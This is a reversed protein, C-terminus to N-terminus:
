WLGPLLRHRVREAYASYAPLERRLYREELRLRVVVFAIPVFACLAATYSGLGLGMGILVLLTGSYFPHRVIRYVGTNVVDHHRERQVRVVSTAFANSRLALGKIAWGLAFLLLGLDALLPTPPSLLQWRFVDLGAIVPLGVFGTALVLFVLLRDTQPQDGHIPLKAREELLAPNIRYVAVATIMRTGLLLALLAWARGWALTGASIFLLLGVLMADAVLRLLVRLM